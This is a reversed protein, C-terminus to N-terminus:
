KKLIGFTMEGGRDMLVMIGRDLGNKKVLEEFDEASRIPRGAAELIIDGPRFGAVEGPSGALVREVRVGGNELDALELGHSPGLNTGPPNPRPIPVAPVPQMSTSARILQDPQEGTEIPIDLTQGNRWVELQVTQGISKSLIERQLDRAYAVKHGDVRLIVDGAQLQSRFAPTRPEIGEVLVGGELDPFLAKRDENEALGVIIIGLWPRSVRGQDILQRSINKAINVPVAFGLGRNLGSILTNVGIVKGDLDVLPGGSNGPNISADTQIYEEYSPSNTLNTRGKASVVGVTFTYPLDFPAGIAFAFEGVKVADSDGLEVTPLDKADIRIVAIDSKEDRGVLQGPFKRGDHLTVTISGSEGSQVVHNNTLILGDPSIIFGSGQEPAQEFRRGDPGRFFFDLGRPLGAPAVAERSRVELVVVAPAVKEYVAAFADNLQRATFAGSEAPAPLVAAFLLPVVLNCAKM